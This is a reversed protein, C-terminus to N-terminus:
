SGSSGIWKFNPTLTPCNDSATYTAKADAVQVGITWTTGACKDLSSASATFDATGAAGETYTFVTSTPPEFGIAEFSGAATASTQDVVWADQMHVYSASVIMLLPANLLIIM